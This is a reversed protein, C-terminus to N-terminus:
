ITSQNQSVARCLERWGRISRSPLATCGNCSVVRWWTALLRWGVMFPVPLQAIVNGCKRYEKMAEHIVVPEVDKDAYYEIDHAFEGCMKDIVLERNESEKYLKSWEKMSRM